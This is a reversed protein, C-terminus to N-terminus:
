PLKAVADKESIYLTKEPKIFGLNEANKEFTALSSARVLEDSLYQNESALAVEEKDLKALAAGSSAVEVILLTAVAVFIGGAILILARKPNTHKM